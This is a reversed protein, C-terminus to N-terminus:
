QCAGGGGVIIHISGTATGGRGDSITYTIWGHNYPNPPYGTVSIRQADYIYVDAVNSTGVSVIALADGDPDTDNVVLNALVTACQPVNVVDTNAIPLNNPAPPPPPAPAGTPVPVPQPCVAGAGAPDSRYRTRNDTSDYCISHKQGNNITGSYSVDILRGFEDYTFTQKENAQAMAPELSYAIISLGAILRRNQSM